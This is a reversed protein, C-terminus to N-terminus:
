TKHTHLLMKLAFDKLTISQHSTYLTKFSSQLKKTEDLAFFKILFYISVPM